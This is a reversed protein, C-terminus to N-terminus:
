QATGRRTKEAERSIIELTLARGLQTNTKRLSAFARLSSTKALLAAVRCDLAQRLASSQRAESAIVPLAHIM